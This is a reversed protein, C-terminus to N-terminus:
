LLWAITNKKGSQPEITITKVQVLKQEVLAFASKKYLSKLIANQNRAVWHNAKKTSPEKPQEQGLTLNKIEAEVTYM